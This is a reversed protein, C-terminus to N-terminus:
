VRERCSARGIQDSVAYASYGVSCALLVCLLGFGALLRSQIRLKSIYGFM